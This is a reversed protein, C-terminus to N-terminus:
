EQQISQIIKDMLRALQEAEAQDLNALLRQAINRHVAEHESSVQSGKQTLQIHYSRRDQTSPVKRVYGERNLKDMATSISPKSLGMKKALETPTPNELEAIVELYYIQRLSLDSFRAGLPESRMGIIRQTLLKVIEALKYEIEV